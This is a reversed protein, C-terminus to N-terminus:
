RKQSNADFIVIPGNAIKFANALGFFCCILNQVYEARKAIQRGGIGEIGRKGIRAALHDILRVLLCPALRRRRQVPM